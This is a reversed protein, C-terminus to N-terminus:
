QEKTRLWGIGMLALFMGLASVFIRQAMRMFFELPFLQIIRSDAAFVWSGQTFFLRHFWYFLYDFSLSQMLVLIFMICIGLVGAFFLGQGRGLVVVALGFILVWWSWAMVYRVDGLHEVEAETFGALEGRGHVYNIVQQQEPTFDTFFVVLEYSSLLVVLVLICSFLKEM